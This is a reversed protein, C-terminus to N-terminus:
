LWKLAKTLIDDIKEEDFDQYYDNVSLKDFLEATEAEFIHQEKIDAVLERLDQDDAHIFHTQWHDENKVTWELDFVWYFHDAALIRSFAEKFSPDNIQQYIASKPAYDFSLIIRVLVKRSDSQIANMKEEIAQYVTELDSVPRDFHCHLPEFIIPSTPLFQSVLQGQQSEVLYIGKMGPENIHRGQICGSYQITHDENLAHRKHIHGLAWYDYDKRILDSLTVPAYPNNESVVSEVQGHWMGIHYDVDPLRDPLDDIREEKIYRSAYSFGSIAVREGNKLTLEITDGESSLLYTNEPYPLVRDKSILYDHNGYLVIAPIGKENLRDLGQKFRVQAKINLGGQDYIDGSLCVFDADKELAYTILQDYAQYPADQLAQMINEPLHTLGQFPTGLHLDAAHIFRMISM